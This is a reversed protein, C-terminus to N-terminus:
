QDEKIFKIWGGLMRGIEDIIEELIQYEKFAFFKLDKALRTFVRLKNLVISAKKLSELKNERENAEIMLGIFDICSEEIRRGLIYQQRKPFKPVYVYVQKILDYTKQFIPLNQLYNKNM